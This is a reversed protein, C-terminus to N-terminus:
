DQVLLLVPPRGDGDLLDQQADLVEEIIGVDLIRGLGLSVGAETLVSGVVLLPDSSLCPGHSSLLFVRIKWKSSKLNKIYISSFYNLLTEM